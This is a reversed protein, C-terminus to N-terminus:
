NIITLTEPSGKRSLIVFVSAKGATRTLRKEFATRESASLDRGAYVEIEFGDREAVVRLERELYAVTPKFVQSPVSDLEITSLSTPNAQRKLLNYLEDIKPLNLMLTQHKFHGLDFRLEGLRGKSWTRSHDDPSLGTGFDAYALEVNANNMYEGLITKGEFLFKATGTAVSPNGSDDTPFVEDSNQFILASKEKQLGNKVLFRNAIHASDEFIAPDPFLRPFRLVVEYFDVRDVM